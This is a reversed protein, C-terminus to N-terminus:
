GLHAVFVRRYRILGDVSLFCRPEILDVIKREGPFDILLKLGTAPSRRTFIVLKGSQGLYLDERYDDLSERM